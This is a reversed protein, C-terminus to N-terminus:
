YCGCGGVAGDGTGGISAERSHHVKQRLHAEGRDPEAQMVVRSLDRKEYFPVSRCGVASFGISVVAIVASCRTRAPRPLKM